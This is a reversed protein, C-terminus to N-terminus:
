RGPPASFWDTSRKVTEVSITENPLDFKVDAKAPVSATEGDLVFCTKGGNSTFIRRGDLTLQTVNSAAGGVIKGAADRRLWLFQADTEIDQVAIGEGDWCAILDSLGPAVALSGAYGRQAPISQVVSRGEPKNKELPHPVLLTLFRGDTGHMTVSLRPHVGERTTQFNDTQDEWQDPTLFRVQLWAPQAPPDVEERKMDGSIDGETAQVVITGEPLSQGQVLPPGGDPALAIAACDTGSQRAFLDLEVPGAPFTLAPVSVAGKNDNLPTWMLPLRSYTAWLFLKPNAGGSSGQKGGNIQLFFSNSKDGDPNATGTLGWVRYKGAKPMELTVHWKAPGAGSPTPANVLPRIVAIRPSDPQPVVDVGGDNRQFMKGDRTHLLWTYAHVNNDKKVDDFVVAYPFPARVFLAQRDARQFSQKFEKQYSIDPKNLYFYRYADAVDLCTLDVLPAHLSDVVWGDTQAHPGGQLEPQGDVLVQNHAFGSVSKLPSGDNGYGSDIALDDGYAYLTFQGKDAQDHRIATYHQAHISFYADKPGWGSRSVVLSRGGAWGYDPLKAVFAAMVDAPQKEPAWLIAASLDKVESTHLLQEWLYRALARDPERYLAYLLGDGSAGYDSDEINNVRNGGPLIELPLWDALRNYHTSTYLDEGTHAKFGEVFYPLYGAGYGFYSPGEIIGGQADVGIRLYDEVNRSAQFLWQRTPAHTEGDLVLASLGWTSAIGASWNWVRSLASQGWTNNFAQFYFNNTRDILSQRIDEREDRTFAPYCWDLALALSRLPFTQTYFFGPEMAKPTMKQVVAMTLEVVKAGYREDGSVAYAFELLDLPTLWRRALGELAASNKSADPTQALALYDDFAKSADLFSGSQPDVYSDCQAKLKNWLAAVDPDDQIREKVRAMGAQDLVICPHHKAWEPEEPILPQPLPPTPVAAALHVHFALLAAALFLGGHRSRVIPCRHSV